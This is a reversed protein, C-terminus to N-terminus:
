VRARPAPPGAHHGAGPLPQDGGRHGGVHRAHQDARPEVDLGAHDATGASRGRPPKDSAPAGALVSPESRTRRAASASASAWPPAAPRAPPDLAAPRRGGPLAAAPPHGTAAPGAVRVALLWSPGPQRCEFTFHKLRLSPWTSPPQAARNQHLIS